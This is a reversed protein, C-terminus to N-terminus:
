RLVYARNIYARVETDQVKGIPRCPQAPSNGMNLCLDPGTIFTQLVRPTQIRVGRGEFLCSLDAVTRACQWLAPMRPNSATTSGPVGTRSCSKDRPGKTMTRYESASATQSRSGTQSCFVLPGNRCFPYNTHQTNPKLTIVPYM